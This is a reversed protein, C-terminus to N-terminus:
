DNEAIRCSEEACGKLASFRDGVDGEGAILAASGGGALTNELQYPDARMDYFEKFGSAYEVYLSNADRMAAYDDHVYNEILIRERWPNEDSALLPALSRGDAGPADIGAWHAITPAIDINSAIGERHEGQAVNPGRIVMPVNISNEYPVGKTAWRHDYNEMGNDSAFIVYTNESQSTSELAKDLRRVLDDVAQVSRVRKRYIENTHRTNPQRKLAQIYPPKDSVDAENWAPDKPYKLNKYEGKHRMAVPYPKHPSKTSVMLFWPTNKSHRIFTEAQSALYDSEHVRADRYRVEGNISVTDKGRKHFQRAYPYAVWKNWGPPVYRPEDYANLYKGMLATKYGSAHLWTAVTSDDVGNARSVPYGGEPPSNTLVGHSHVYQGTLYSVRSPCCQPDTVYARDLTIGKAELRNRVAQMYRATSKEQDDTLIFLVNPRQPPTTEQTVVKNPESCSVLLLAAVAAFVVTFKRM